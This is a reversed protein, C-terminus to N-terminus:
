FGGRLEIRARWFAQNGETTAKARSAGIDELERENLSSLPRRYLAQRTWLRLRSATQRIAAGSTNWLSAKSSAKSETITAMAQQVKRM